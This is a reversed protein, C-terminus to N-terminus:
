PQSKHSKAGAPRERAIARAKDRGPVPNSQSNDDRGPLDGLTEVASVPEVPDDITDEVPITATDSSDHLAIIEDRETEKRSRKDESQTERQPKGNM